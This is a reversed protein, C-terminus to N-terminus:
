IQCSGDTSAGLVVGMSTNRWTSCKTYWSTLNQHSLLLHTRVHGDFEPSPGDLSWGHMLWVQGGMVVKKTIVLRWRQHQHTQNTNLVKLDSLSIETVGWQPFCRYVQIKSDIPLLSCSGSIRSLPIVTDVAPVIARWGPCLIDVCVPRVLCPSYPILVAHACIPPSMLLLFNSVASIHDNFVKVFVFVPLM